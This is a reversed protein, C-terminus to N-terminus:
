SRSIIFYQLSPQVIMQKIKPSKVNEETLINFPFNVYEKNLMHWPYNVYKCSINWHYNFM